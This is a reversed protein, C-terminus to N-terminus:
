YARIDVDPRNTLIRDCDSFQERYVQTMQKSTTPSYKGFEFFDAEQDDVLGVITSYSKILYFRNNLCQSIWMQRSKVRSWRLGGNSLVGKLSSLDRATEVARENSMGM